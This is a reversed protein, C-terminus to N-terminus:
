RLVTLPAHAGDRDPISPDYHKPTRAWPLLQGLRCNPWKNLPKTLVEAFCAQPNIGHLKGTEIPSAPMARNKAGKESDFAVAPISQELPDPNIEIRGIDLCRPLRDSQNFSDRIAPAIPAGSPVSRYRLHPQLAM